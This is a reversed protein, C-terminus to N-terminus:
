YWGIINRTYHVWAHVELIKFAVYSKKLARYPLLKKVM